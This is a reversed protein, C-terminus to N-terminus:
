GGGVRSFGSGGRVMGSVASANETDKGFVSSACSVTAKGVGLFARKGGALAWGAGNM